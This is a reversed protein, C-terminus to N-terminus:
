GLGWLDTETLHHYAHNSYDTKIGAAVARTIIHFLYDEGRHVVSLAAVSDLLTAVDPAIQLPYPKNVCYWYVTDCVGSWELTVVGEIDPRATFSNLLSIVRQGIARGQRGKIGVIGVIM